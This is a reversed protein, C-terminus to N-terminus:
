EKWYKYGEEGQGAYEVWEDFIDELTEDDEEEFILIGACSAFEKSGDDNTRCLVVNVTSGSIGESVYFEGDTVDLVEVTM